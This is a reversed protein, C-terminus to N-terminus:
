ISCVGGEKGLTVVGSSHVAELPLMYAMAIIMPAIVMKLTYTDIFFFSCFM